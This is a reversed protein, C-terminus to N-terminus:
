KSRHGAPDLGPAERLLLPQIDSELSGLGRPLRQRRRPEFGLGPCWSEKYDKIAQEICADPELPEILFAGASYRRSYNTSVAIGGLYGDLRAVEKHAEPSIM